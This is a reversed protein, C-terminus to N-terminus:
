RWKLIEKIKGVVIKETKEHTIASPHYDAGKGDADEQMPLHLYHIRGELGKKKEKEVVEEVKYCLRQDMTGLMCLIQSTPNKSAVYDVFAEYKAAYVDDREKIERCYSADNTGINIIIIDPVYKNFDWKEWKSTDDGFIRRSIDADTYQYLMPMLWNDLPENVDEPVWNSIMGIGSWSVLHGKADLARITRLSYSKEPNEQTTDFTQLENEAEVGYGCTISDGIIEIRRTRYDPTKELYEADVSLSCIGCSGFAAESYKEIHVTVTKEEESEYLLYQHKGDELRIRQRPENEDNIFVAIWGKLFEEWKAADSVIEATAKKGTFTFSIRSGSYSLYCVDDVVLMRGLRNVLENTALFEM